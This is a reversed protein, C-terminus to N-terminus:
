MWNVFAGASPTLHVCRNRGSRTAEERAIYDALLPFPPSFTGVISM